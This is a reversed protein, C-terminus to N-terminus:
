PRSESVGTTPASGGPVTQEPQSDGPTSPEPQSIPPPDPQTSRAMQLACWLATRARRTHLTLEHISVALALVDRDDQHRPGGQRQRNTANVVEERRRAQVKRVGELFRELTSILNSHLPETVLGEIRNVLTVVRSHERLQDVVLRDVRSPNSPLRPIPLSNNSSIKKGPYLRALDAETKKREKELNRFQDYCEELRVHLENSPGSRRGGMRYMGYPGPYGYFPHPPPFDFMMEPAYFPPPFPGPPYFDPPYSEFAEGSLPSLPPMGNPGHPPPPPPPMTTHHNHRKDTHAFPPPFPPAQGFQEAMMEEYNRNRPFKGRPPPPGLPGDQQGQPTTEGPPPRFGFPPERKAGPGQFSGTPPPRNNGSSNGHYHGAASPPRSSGPNNGQHSGSPQHQWKDVSGGPQYGGSTPPMADGQFNRPPMPPRNEGHFSFRNGPHPYTPSDQQYNSKGTFDRPPSHQPTTPSPQQSAESKPVGFESPFTPPPQPPQFNGNGMWGADSSQSSPPFPKNQPFGQQQKDYLPSQEDSSTSSHSKGNWPVPTTKSNRAWETYQAQDNAQPGPMSPVQNGENGQWTSRTDAMSGTPPFERGRGQYRTGFQQKRFGPTKELLAPQFPRFGSQNALEDQSASRPISEAGGRTGDARQYESRQGWRGGRQGGWGSDGVSSNSYKRYGQEQRSNQQQFYNGDGQGLNVEEANWEGISFNSSGSSHRERFNGQPQYEESQHRFRQTGEPRKPSELQEQKASNRWQEINGFPDDNNRFNQPRNFGRPPSHFPPKSSMMPLNQEYPKSPPPVPPHQVPPPQVPPPQSFIDRKPWMPSNGPTRRFPRRPQQQQLQQQQLIQQQPPPPPKHGSLLEDGGSSWISQFNFKNGELGFTSNSGFVDADGNQPQGSSVPVDDDIIKSVLDDLARKDQSSNLDTGWLPSSLIDAPTAQAVVPEDQQTSWPSYLSVPDSERPQPPSPFQSFPPTDLPPSFPDNSPIHNHQQTVQYNNNGHHHSAPRNFHDGVATHDQQNGHYSPNFPKARPNPIFPQQVNRSNGPAKMHGQPLSSAHHALEQRLSVAM